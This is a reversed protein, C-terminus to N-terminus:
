SDGVLYGLHQHLKQLLIADEARRYVTVMFSFSVWLLRPVQEEHKEKKGKEAM